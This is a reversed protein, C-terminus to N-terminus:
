SNTVEYTKQTEQAMRGLIGIIFLFTLMSSSGSSIFPLPIGKTPLLGTVVGLNFLTQIALISTLGFGLFKFYLKNQLFSIRYGIGIIYIFLSFLFVIGILGTEETIVSFIFDTHAEPLFFLKQKSEGFGVGLLGGNQFALFSQIIQFGGGHINGWPDLFNLLRKMRYPAALIGLAFGLLSVLFTIILIQRSTGAVFLMLFTLIVLLVTTGFDPQKLLLISFIGLVLINPLIGSFFKNINSSKRTLNKAMFFVLAIKAAESPQFRFSVLNIWRTAGGVRSYVGPIFVLGLILISSCVLFIPLREIWPLPLFRMGFIFTFGLISTIAQKQLFFYSNKYLEIGKLGSAAYVSLLGFLSLIITTAILYFFLSERSQNKM